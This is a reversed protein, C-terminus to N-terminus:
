DVEIVVAKSLRLQEKGDGFKTIIKEYDEKALQYRAKRDYLELVFQFVKYAYLLDVEEVNSAHTGENGLLKLSELYEAEEPHREKLSCIQQHLNKGKAGWDSCFQEIARRLKSAASNPDFHIHLFSNQLETMIIEPVNESIRFVPVCPSFYEVKLRINNEGRNSDIALGNISVNGGCSQCQMFGNMLSPDGNFDATHDLLLVAGVSFVAGLLTESKFEKAAESIKDEKQKKIQAYKKYSKEAQERSIQKLVLSDQQIKLTEASCYPCTISPYEDTLTFSFIKKWSNINL